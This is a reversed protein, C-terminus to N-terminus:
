KSEKKSKKTEETKTKEAELSKVTNYNSVIEQILTNNKGTLAEQLYVIDNQTM